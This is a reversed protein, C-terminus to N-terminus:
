GNEKKNRKAIFNYQEQLSIKEKNKHRQILNPLELKLSDTFEKFSKLETVINKNLIYYNDERRLFTFDDRYFNENRIYNRSVEDDLKLNKVLRCFTRYDMEISKEYISLIVIHYEFTRRQKKSEYDEKFITKIIKRTLGSYKMDTIKEPIKVKININLEKAFKLLKTYTLRNIQNELSYM